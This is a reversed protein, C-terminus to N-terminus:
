LFIHVGFQNRVKKLKSVYTKKLRQYLELYYEKSVVNLSYRPIISGTSPTNDAAPIAEKVEAM